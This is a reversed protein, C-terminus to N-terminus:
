TWIYMYLDSKLDRLLLQTTVWPLPHIRKDTVSQDSQNLNTSGSVQNELHLIGTIPFEILATCGVQGPAGDTKSNGKTKGVVDLGGFRRKRLMVSEDRDSRIPIYTIGDIVTFRVICKSPDCCRNKTQKLTVRKYTHNKGGGTCSVASKMVPFPNFATQAKEESPVQLLM